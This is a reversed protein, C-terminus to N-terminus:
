IEYLFSMFELVNDRVFVHFHGFFAFSGVFFNSITNSYNKKRQAATRDLYETFRVSDRVSDPLEEENVEQSTRGGGYFSGSHRLYAKGFFRKLRMLYSNNRDVSKDFNM